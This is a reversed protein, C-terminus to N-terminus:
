EGKGLVASEWTPAVSEWTYASHVVRRGEAAIDDRLEKDLALEVLRDKWQKGEALVGDAADRVTRKYEGWREGVFCAGIAGAELWKINSKAANFENHELPSVVLDPSIWKMMRPYVSMPLFRVWVVKGPDYQTGWDPMSNAFVVKTHPLELFAELAPRLGHFDMARGAGGACMLVCEDDRKTPRVPHGGWADMEIYNPAVVGGFREALLPTSCVVRDAGDLAAKMLSKRGAGWAQFARNSKPLDTFLDDLDFVVEAGYERMLSQFAQAEKRYDNTWWVKVSSPGAAEIEAAITEDRDDIEVFSDRDEYSDVVQAGMADAAWYCRYHRVGPAGVFNAM